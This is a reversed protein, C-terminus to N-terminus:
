KRREAAEAIRFIAVRRAVTLQDLVNSLSLETHFLPCLIDSDVPFGVVCPADHKEIVLFHKREELETVDIQLFSDWYTHVNYGKYDRSLDSRDASVRECNSSCEDQLESLLQGLIPFLLLEKLEDPLSDNFLSNNVLNFVEEASSLTLSCLLLYAFTRLIPKEDVGIKYMRRKLYAVNILGLDLAEFLKPSTIATGWARKRIDGNAFENAIVSFVALGGFEIQNRVKWLESLTKPPVFELKNWFRSELAQLRGHMSLAESFLRLVVDPHRSLLRELYAHDWLKVKPSQYSRQWERVWDRTPNSFQTNTVIVLYDLESKAQANIVASRVEAPEVTGTRGKCEVWWTKAEIEDDASPNYFRAELDRGGDAAGGGSGGTRWELDKAGMADFLWYVSEELDRGKLERFPISSPLIWETAPRDPM